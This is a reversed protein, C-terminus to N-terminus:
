TLIFDVIIMMLNLDVVDLKLDRWSHIFWDILPLLLRVADFEFEFLLNSDIPFLIFHRRWVVTYYFITHTM